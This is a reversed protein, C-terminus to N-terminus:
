AETEVFGKKFDFTNYKYRDPPGPAIQLRPNAPDLEIIISELTPFTPDTEYNKVIPRTRFIRRAEDSDIEDVRGGILEVLKALREPSKSAEGPKMQPTMDLPHNTHPVYKEGNYSEHIKFFDKGTEVISVGTPDGIIYDMPGAYKGVSRVFEVAERRTKRALIGRVMYPMPLGDLAGSLRTPMINITCGLPADNLGNNALLGAFTFVYTQRGDDEKLRLLTQTGDFFRPLDNNQGIINPLNNRGYVGFGTCFGLRYKDVTFSLFEDFMNYAYLNNFDVNAGAAIGQLELYLDPTHKQIAGMFDTGQVFEAIEIEADTQELVEGIWQKWKAMGSQIVYKLARGHAFGREYPKGEVTLFYLRNEIKQAKPPKSQPFATSIPGLGFGAAAAGGAAAKTFARRSMEHRPQDIPNSV